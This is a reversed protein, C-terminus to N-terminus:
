SIGYTALIRSDNKSITGHTGNQPDYYSYTWGDVNGTLIVAHGMYGYGGSLLVIAQDNYHSYGSQGQPVVGATLGYSDMLYSIHDARVGSYGVMDYWQAGYGQSDYNLAMYAAYRSQVSVVSEGTMFSITQFVCDAPGDFYYGTGGLISQMESGKLVLFERGLEELAMKVNMKRKM